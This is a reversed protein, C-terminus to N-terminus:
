RGTRRVLLRRIRGPFGLFARRRRAVRGRVVGVGLVVPAPRRRLRVRDVRRFVAVHGVPGDLPDEVVPGGGRGVLLVFPPADRVGDAGGDGVGVGVRLRVEVGIRAGPRRFVLAVGAPGGSRDPSAHSWPAM